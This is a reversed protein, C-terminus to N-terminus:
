RHIDPIILPVFRVLSPSIEEPQYLPKYIMLIRHTIAIVM